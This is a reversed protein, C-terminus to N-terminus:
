QAFPDEKQMKPASRGWPDDDKSMTV